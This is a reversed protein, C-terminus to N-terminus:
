LYLGYPSTGSNTGSGASNGPFYSAGGGFTNVLANSEVSYRSGTATGTFTWSFWNQVSASFGWTFSHAFNPTGTLTVAITSGNFQSGAGDVRVHNVSGGSISYNGIASVTGGSAVQIHQTACAGFNINSFSVTVGKDSARIGVGSTTTQVKLDKITVNKPLGTFNFANASTASILVNAPTGSNGQIVVIGGVPAFASSVGSTYTGDAIQITAVFGYLDLILITNWAKQLTLFPTLATLGDNGDSGGSGSPAVYYTRNGPLVERQGTKLANLADTVTAGAVDSENSVDDSTVNGSGAVIKFRNGESDIICTAGNDATTTDGTDLDFNAQLSRIYIGAFQGSLDTNRAVSVSSINRRHATKDDSRVHSKVVNSGDVYISDIPHNM